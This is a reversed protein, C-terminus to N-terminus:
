VKRRLNALLCPYSGKCADAIVKLYQIQNQISVAYLDEEIGWRAHFHHPMYRIVGDFYENFRKLAVLTYFDGTKKFLDLSSEYGTIGAEQFEMYLRPLKELYCPDGMQAVLDATGLIFGMMKVEECTFVLDAPSTQLITCDIMQRCEKIDLPSLGHSTLYDGMLANSRQEHGIMHKAGTGETDHTEPLLGTDHFFAALVGLELVRLSFTSGVIHMGHVLRVLALVVACTHALDHYKTNSAAYGPYDGKYLRILDQSVEALLSYDFGPAILAVIERIEALVQDVDGVQLLDRNRCYNNAKTKGM